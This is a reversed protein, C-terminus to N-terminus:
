RGTEHGMYGGALVGMAPLVGKPAAAGLAREAAVGLGYGATAGVAAGVTARTQNYRQGRDPDEGTVLHQREAADEQGEPLNMSEINGWNQMAAQGVNGAMQSTALARSASKGLGAYAIELFDCADMLVSVGDVSAAKEWLPAEVVLETAAVKMEGVIAALFAGLDPHDADLQGAEKALAEVITDHVLQAAMKLPGIPQPAGQMQVQGAHMAPAAGTQVVGKPATSGLSPAKAMRRALLSVAVPVAQRAVAKVINGARSGVAEAAPAAAAAPPAMKSAAYGAAAGAGGAMLATGFGNDDAQKSALYASYPDHM